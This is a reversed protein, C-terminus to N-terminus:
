DCTYYGNTEGGMYCGCNPCYNHPDHKWTDYGCGCVSCILTDLRYSSMEWEGYVVPVVDAAPVANLCEIAEKKSYYVLGLADNKIAEIAAQRSIYDNM